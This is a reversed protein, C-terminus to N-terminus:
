PSIQRLADGARRRVEPDFTTRAVTRLPGLAPKGIKVLGEQAQERTAYEEAGLQEILDYIREINRAAARARRRVEADPSTRAARRLAGLAPKGIEVLREQAGQRVAFANDGLRAILKDIEGAPPPAPGQGRTAQGACAALLLLSVAAGRWTSTGSEPM